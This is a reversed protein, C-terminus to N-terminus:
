RGGSSARCWRRRRRRVAQVPLLMAVVEVVLDVPDDILSSSRAWRSRSPTVDRAGRQAIAKLNGGSSCVVRRSSMWTDTPRVPGPSATRRARAPTRRRTSPPSPSAACGPGPPASPRGGRRCRRRACPPRRSGRPPRGPGTAAGRRCRATSTGSRSDRAAAVREHPGLALGVGSADRRVARRLAVLLDGVERRAAPHVDLAEALLHHLLQGAGTQDAVRGIEVRQGDLLQRREVPDPRRARLVEDGRDVPRAGLRQLPEHRREAHAMETRRRRERQGLLEAREVLHHRLRGLLQRRDFADARHDGVRDDRPEPTSTFRSYM